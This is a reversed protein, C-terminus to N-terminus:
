QRTWDTFTSAIKTVSRFEFNEHDLVEHCHDDTDGAAEPYPRFFSEGAPLLKKMVYSTMMTTLRVNLFRLHTQERLDINKKKTKRKLCSDSHHM